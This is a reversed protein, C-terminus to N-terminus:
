IKRERPGGALPLWGLLNKSTTFFISAAVTLHVDHSQGLISPVSMREAHAELQPDFANIAGQDLWKKAVFMAHM